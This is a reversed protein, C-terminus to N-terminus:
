ARLLLRQRARLLLVFAALVFAIVAALAAMLGRKPTTKREAPVAEDIVQILAGERAEDARALEYQRAMIEFLAEFYKVNRVAHIYAEAKGSASRGMGDGELKAIQGRLAALEQQAARVEPSGDALMTRMSAIRVELEAVKAQMQALTAVTAEPVTKIVGQDVGVAQLERDAKVMGEQALKLQQEFFVRRQQAETLALSHTMKRLEDVYANAMDAARKPDEDLVGIEILGDKAALIRTRDALEERAEYQFEVDYHRRLDFRAILADAMSRGQLIGVWQDAPNKLGALAGAGGALGALGTLSGLVTSATSQAQQPPLMRVEGLFKPQLLFTAGLTLAGALLALGMLRLWNEALVKLLAGLDIESPPM